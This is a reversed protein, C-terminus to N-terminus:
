DEDAEGPGSPPSLHWHLRALLRDCVPPDRNSLCVMTMDNTPYISLAASNGPAGGGHGWHPFEDPGSSIFGYGYWDTQQKIAEALLPLPILKGAKLAQVFRVEDDVTTVGGGAPTGRWPLQDASQVLTGDERQTYGRAVGDMQELTPFRTASMGAPAFVHESLYDYFGQDSAAEVIAGLLLFGYNSYEFASGPPFEPARNGNLKILDAISRVWARNADEDPQLVGVDGAGGQHSLLQRVTVAAMAENPYDKLYKGIPDDLGIKGAAVLQLVAVATFMKGQSAFLFPTDLQALTNDERNALGFSKAYLRRCNQEIVLAGSFRDAAALQTAFADFADLAENPSIPLPEQTIHHLRLSAADDVEVTIRRQVPFSREQTLVVFKLPDRHEIKVVDLGGTEERSDLLYEINHDPEGFRRANFETLAVRDNRNFASLWEEFATEAPPKALAQAILCSSLVTLVNFLIRM